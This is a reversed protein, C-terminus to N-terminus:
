FHLQLTWNSRKKCKTSSYIANTGKEKKASNEDENLSARKRTTSMKGVNCRSTAVEARFKAQDLIESDMKGQQQLVRKYLLWTNVTSLDLLHYFLRM